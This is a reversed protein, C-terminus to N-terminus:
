CKGFVRDFEDLDITMSSFLDENIQEPKKASRNGKYNSNEPKKDTGEKQNEKTFGTKIYDITKVTYSQKMSGDNGVYSVMDASICIQSGKKLNMKKIREKVGDYANFTYIITKKVTASQYNEKCRFTIHEDREELVDGDLNGCCTLSFFTVAPYM